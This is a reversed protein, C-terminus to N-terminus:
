LGKGEARSSKRVSRSSSPEKYGSRASSPTSNTGSAKAGMAAEAGERPTALSIGHAETYESIISSINLTLISLTQPKKAVLSKYEEFSIYNERSPQIENLTGRVVKEIDDSSMVIEHERMTAAVMTALEEKSILGDDDTDYINFSLRLKEEPTAKNSLASLCSIFESFNIMEDHNTDFVRFIRDLLVSDRFLMATQFETRDIIGDDEETSSIEKFHFWLARIEQATFHTSQVYAAIEDRRLSCVTFKNGMIDKM